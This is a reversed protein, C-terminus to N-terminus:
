ESCKCIDRIQQTRLDSKRSYLFDQMSVSLIDPMRWMRGEKSYQESDTYEINECTEPNSYYLAEASAFYSTASNLYALAISINPNDRFIEKHATIARFMGRTILSKLSGLYDDM